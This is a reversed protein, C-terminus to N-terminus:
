KSESELSEIVRFLRERAELAIPKIASSEIVGLVAGPDMAEVITRGDQQRLVVNCPLLAGVSPEAM